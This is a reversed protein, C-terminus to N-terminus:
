KEKYAGKRYGKRKYTGIHTLRRKSRGPGHAVMKWHGAVVIPHGHISRTYWNETLLTVRYGIDNTYKQRGQKTKTKPPLEKTKIEAYKKFLLCGTMMSIVDNVANVAEEHTIHGAYYMTWETQEKDPYNTNVAYLPIENGIIIASWKFLEGIILTNPRKSPVVAAFEQGFIEPYFNALKKIQSQAAEAFTKSIYTVGETALIQLAKRMMPYGIGEDLMPQPMAFAQGMKGSLIPFNKATFKM